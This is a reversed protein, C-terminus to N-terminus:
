SAPMIFLSQIIISAILSYSLALGIALAFSIDLAHRIVHGFVVQIWIILVIYALSIIPSTPETAASSDGVALQLPLALLSLISASGFLATATQLFRASRQQILLVLRLVIILMTADLMAAALAMAPNKIVDIVGVASILVNILLVAFFLTSSAPLDQPARRLLCIDLFFNFLKLM